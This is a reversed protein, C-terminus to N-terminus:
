KWVPWKPETTAMVPRAAGSGDDFAEAEVGEAFSAVGIAGIIRTAVLRAVIKGAACGVAAVGAVFHEFLHADHV